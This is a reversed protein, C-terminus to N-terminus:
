WDVVWDGEGMCGDVGYVGWVGNRLGIIKGWVGM